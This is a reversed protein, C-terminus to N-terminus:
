TQFLRKEARAQRQAALREAKREKRARARELQERNVQCRNLYFWLDSANIRLIRRTRSLRLTIIDCTDLSVVIRKDRDPGFASGLANRTVACAPSDKMDIIAGASDRVPRKHGFTKM